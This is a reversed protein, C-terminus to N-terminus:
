LPFTVGGMVAVPVPVVPSTSGDGTLRCQEGWCYAVGNTALRLHTRRRREARSHSGGTVAVPVSSSSTSGDGLHGSSNLGWCYAAGDTSLGCTHVSGASLAFFTLGGTVAAPVVSSETSGNGLAGSGWCYVAGATTGGCTHASVVTGAVTSLRYGGASVSVFSVGDPPPPPCTACPEDSCGAFWALAGVAVLDM